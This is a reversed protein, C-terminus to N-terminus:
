VPPITVYSEHGWPKNQESEQLNDVNNESSKVAAEPKKM